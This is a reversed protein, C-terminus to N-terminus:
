ATLTFSNLSGWSTEAIQSLPQDVYWVLGVTAVIGISWAIELGIILLFLLLGLLFVAFGAEFGM